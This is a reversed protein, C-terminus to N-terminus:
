PTATWVGWHHVPLSTTVLGTQLLGMSVVGEQDTSLELTGRFDPSLEAFLEDIFAATQNGAPLDRQSVGVETGDQALLRFTLTATEPGSNVVAIGTRALGSPTQLYQAPVVAHTFYGQSYMAPRVAVQSELNGDGGLVSYYASAMVREGRTMEHGNMYGWNAEGLDEVDILLWGTQLSGAEPAPGVDFFAVGQAPLQFPFEAGATGDITVTLPEGNSAFFRLTGTVVYDDESPLWGMRQPGGLNSLILTLNVSEGVAVHPLIINHELEHGQYGAFHGAADDHNGGMGGGMQAYMLAPTLLLITILSFRHSKKM